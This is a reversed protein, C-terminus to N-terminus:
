SPCSARVQRSSLGLRFVNEPTQLQPAGGDRDGLGSPSAEVVRNVFSAAAQVALTPSIALPVCTSGMMAVTAMAYTATTALLCALLWAPSAGPLLAAAGRASNARLVLVGLGAAMALPVAVRRWPRTM